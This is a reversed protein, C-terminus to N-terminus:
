EYLEKWIQDFAMEYVQVRIKSRICICTRAHAECYETFYLQESVQRLLKNTNKM